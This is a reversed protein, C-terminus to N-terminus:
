LGFAQELFLRISQTIDKFCEAVQFLGKYATSLYESLSSLLRFIASESDRLAFLCAEVLHDILCM